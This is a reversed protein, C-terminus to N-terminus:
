AAQTAPFSRLALAPRAIAPHQQTLILGLRGRPVHTCMSCSGGPAGGFGPICVPALNNPLPAANSPPPAATTSAASYETSTHQDAALTIVPYVARAKSVWTSSYANLDRSIVALLLWSYHHLTVISAVLLWGSGLMIVVAKVRPTVARSWLAKSLINQKCLM